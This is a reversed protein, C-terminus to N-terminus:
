SAWYRRRVMRPTKAREMISRGPAKTLVATAVKSSAERIVGIVRWNKRGKRGM